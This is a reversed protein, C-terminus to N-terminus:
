SSEAAYLSDFVTRSGDAVDSHFPDRLPRNRWPGLSTKTSSALWGQYLSLLVPDPDASSLLTRAPSTRPVRSLLAGAIPLVAGVAIVVLHLQRCIQILFSGSASPQPIRCTVPRVSDMDFSKLHESTGVARM